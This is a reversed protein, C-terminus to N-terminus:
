PVVNTVSVEVDLRTRGEVDVKEVVSLLRASSEEAKRLRGILHHRKRPEATSERKLQM